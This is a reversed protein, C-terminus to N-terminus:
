PLTPSEVNLNIYRHHLFAGRFHKKKRGELTGTRYAKGLIELPKYLQLVVIM